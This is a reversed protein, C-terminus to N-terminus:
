DDVVELQEGPLPLVALEPVVVQEPRPLGMMNLQFTKTTTVVEAVIEKPLIRSLLGAFVPKYDRKLEMLWDAGSPIDKDPDEAYFAAMIDSRLAAPLHNPTGKTRGGTKERAM